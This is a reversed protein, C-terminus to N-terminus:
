GDSKRDLDSREAPKARSVCDDIIVDDRPLYGTYSPSRPHRRVRSCCSLLEISAGHARLATIAEHDGPAFPREDVRYNAHEAVGVSPVKRRPLDDLRKREVQPIDVLALDVTAEVRIFLRRQPEKCP